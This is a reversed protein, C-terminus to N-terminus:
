DCAASQLLFASIKGKVVEAILSGYPAPGGASCDKEVSLWWGDPRLHASPNRQKITTETDGVHLGTSTHWLSTTMQATLVTGTACPNDPPFAFFEVMLGYRNWHGYCSMRNRKVSEPKGLATTVTALTDDLSLGGFSKDSRIVYSPAAAFASSSAVAFATLVIAVARKM